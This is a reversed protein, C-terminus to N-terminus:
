KTTILRLIEVVWGCQDRMLSAQRVKQYAIKRWFRIKVLMCSRKLYACPNYECRGPTEDHSWRDAQRTTESSEKVLLDIIKCNQLREKQVKARWFSNSNQQKSHTGIFNASHEWHTRLINMSNRIHEGIHGFNGGLTGGKECIYTPWIPLCQM